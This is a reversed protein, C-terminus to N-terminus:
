TSKKPNGLLLFAPLFVLDVVVAMGLVVASLIGFNVNPIFSSFSMIGFGGILIMTTTILAPGTYSIVKLVADDISLGEKRYKNYNSLFHVTDDVVIGLCVSTVLATGIDIPKSLITMLAAGYGLPIINPLMSALGTKISGFAFILLISIGIIAYSISTFFTDVVLDNMGQYIPIKGTLTMNLGFDKASKKYREINALSSLSDQSSWLLTLRMSEYDLSIRDNIDMGQPLSMTYMFLLEAIANDSDPLKYFNEDDGNFSKNMNKIIDIISIVKTIENNELLWNEYAEVKKLFELNKIGDEKGSHIVIEPGTVGGMAKLGFDNAMRLPVDKNFYAYPNSNVTNQFAIFISLIFTVLTTIVIPYRFKKVFNFLAPSYKQTILNNEKIKSKKIKIPFLVLIPAVITLTLLWALMTGFAALIGLDALPILDAQAFSLFGISTSISTLLTPAINKKFAKYTGEINNFGESRYQFYTVLIHVADAIAIAIIITPLMTIMNNFKIGMFGSFGITAILSTFIILFPILVGSIKRFFLILFFIIMLFVMPLMTSTDREAVDRFTHNIATAGNIYFKHDGVNVISKIAEKSKTILLKDDPAGGPYPKVKAYLLAVTADKNILYDPIVKHNLAIEKKESLNDYNFEEPIFDEIMVDDNKSHTYQYNTISDVRIIDPVQWFNDTLQRIVNISDEDFIGSPSHILVVITDDNGFKREFNDYTKILPDTTRFWIRYSFDAEFYKLGQALLVVLILSAVLLKIPHTILFKALSDIFKKM